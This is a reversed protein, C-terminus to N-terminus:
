DVATAHFGEPKDDMAPGGMKVKHGAMSWENALSHAKELDYTFTVSIHAEEYFYCSNLPPSGYYADQDTPTATTKRPFVRAIM